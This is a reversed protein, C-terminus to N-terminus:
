GPGAARSPRWPRATPGSSRSGWGNGNGVGGDARADGRARRPQQLLSAAVASRQGSSCISRWRRGPDIRPSALRHRPLSRPVVRSTVPAGSRRRASTSCRFRRSTRRSGITATGGGSGSSGARGRPAGGALEDHRRRPLGGPQPDRRRRGAKGGPPRGRRRPRDARDGARPRGGLCAENRVRGDADHHAVSGPIHAEDFQLDTRVDVLLAGEARKQEVQRPTLPMVEVGRHGAAGPEAGRHGPLEPSPRCSALRASSSVTRTRDRRAPRQAPARLRHDISVKMDM